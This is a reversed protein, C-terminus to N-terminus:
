GARISCYPLSSALLHFDYLHSTAICSIFATKTSSCIPISISKTIVCSSSLSKSFFFMDNNITTHSYLTHSPQTSQVKLALNGVSYAWLCLGIVLLSGLFNRIYPISSFVALAKDVMFALLPAFKGESVQDHDTQPESVTAEIDIYEFEPELNQETLSLSKSAMRLHPFYTMSRLKEADSALRKLGNSLTEVVQDLSQFAINSFEHERVDEWIHEAPNLEPSYAPQDILAINEPIKLQETTHWGAGDVQMVVYYNSFDKSVQELFIEMMETNAYPLILCTMAGLSPCVAAYAYVYERVIQRPAQPRVGEPAWCRRPINIRGFQGEDEAM